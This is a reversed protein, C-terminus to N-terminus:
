SEQRIEWTGSRSGKQLRTFVIKGTREMEDVIEEAELLSFGIKEYLLDRFRTKGQRYTDRFPGPFTKFILSCGKSYKEVDIKM